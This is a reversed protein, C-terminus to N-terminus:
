LSVGAAWDAWVQACVTANPTTPKRKRSPPSSNNFAPLGSRRPAERIARPMPLSCAYARRWRRAPPPFMAPSVSVCGWIAWAQDWTPRSARRTRGRWVAVSRWRRGSRRWRERWAEAGRRSLLLVRLRGADGLLRLSEFMGRITAIYEEPYDILLLTGPNGAEYASLTRLDPFGAVWGERIMDDAFEDALRTKGVGGEGTIFRVSLPPGETAWRRLEAMEAERGSFESIASNWKLLSFTDPNKQLARRFPLPLKQVKPVQGPSTSAAAPGSLVVGSASPSLFKLPFLEVKIFSFGLDM